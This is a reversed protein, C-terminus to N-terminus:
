GAAQEYVLAGGIYVRVTDGSSELKPPMHFDASYDDLRQMRYRYVVACRLGLWDCEYLNYHILPPNFRVQFRLLTYVRGGMRESGVQTLLPNMVFQRDPTVYEGPAMLISDHPLRVPFLYFVVALILVTVGWLALPLLISRCRVGALVGGVALLGIWLVDRLAAHHTVLFESLTNIEEADVSPYRANWGLALWAFPAIVGLAYILGWYRSGESLASM